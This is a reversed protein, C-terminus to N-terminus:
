AFGHPDPAISYLQRANDDFAEQLYLPPTGNMACVNNAVVMGLRQSVLAEMECRIRLLMAAHFESM